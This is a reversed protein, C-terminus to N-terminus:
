RPVEDNIEKTLSGFHLDVNQIKPFLGSFGLGCEIPSNPCIKGIKSLIGLKGTRYSLYAFTECQLWSLSSELFISILIGPRNMRKNLRGNSPANMDPQAFMPKRFPGNLKGAARGDTETLV